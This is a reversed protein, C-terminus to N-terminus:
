FFYLEYTQRGLFIKNLWEKLLLTEKEWKWAEKKGVPKQNSGRRRRRRRSLQKCDEPKDPELKIALCIQPPAAYASSSRSFGGSWWSAVEEAETGGVDDGYRLLALWSLNKGTTYINELWCFLRHNYISSGCFCGKEVKPFDLTGCFVLSLKAGWM